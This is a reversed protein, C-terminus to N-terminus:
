PNSYYLTTSRLSNDVIITNPPHLPNFHETITFITWGGNFVYVIQIAGISHTVCKQGGGGGRPPGGINKVGVKPSFNKEGGGGGM